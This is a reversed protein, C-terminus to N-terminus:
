LWVADWLPYDGIRAVLGARLPNAVIYRAFHMVQHENRIATDHYGSQWSFRDGSLARNISIASRAKVQKMLRGLSAHKLELLWHVHDPMVVWALSFALEQQQARRLEDVVLRGKQWNDFVPRRNNVNFSILYIRGPESFRGTRLHCSRADKPMGNGEM